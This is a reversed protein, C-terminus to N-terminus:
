NIHLLTSQYSNFFGAMKTPLGDMQADLVQATTGKTILVDGSPLNIAIPGNIQSPMNGMPEFQNSKPNFCEILVPDNSVMGTPLCRITMNCGAIILVRGDKLLTSAHRYRPQIMKGVRTFSNTKPNFIEADAALEPKPGPTIGGCILVRGDRMTTASCEKRPINLRGAFSFQNTRPDFIEAVPIPVYDPFAGSGGVVLVRGDPLLAATSGLRAIKNAPGPVIQPQFSQYSKTDIWKTLDVFNSVAYPYHVSEGGSVILLRGDRLRVSSFAVLGRKEPGWVIVGNDNLFLNWSFTDNPAELKQSDLLVSGDRNIIVRKSDINDVRAIKNHESESGDIALASNVVSINATCVLMFIQLVLSLPNMAFKSVARLSRM